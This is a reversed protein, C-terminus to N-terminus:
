ASCGPDNPGVAEALLRLARNRAAQFGEAQLVELLDSDVLALAGASRAAESTFHQHLLPRLEALLAALEGYEPGVAAELRERLRRALAPSAGGTTIALKVEGRQVVAPLIFDCLQPEDVVNILCGTRAAEAAVAQNVQADDTAAIALFVGALDGVQYSREALLIRGASALDRMEPAMDPSIVTVNAGADLLALVKRVAVMGGGIVVVRRRDLGTLCIAYTRM